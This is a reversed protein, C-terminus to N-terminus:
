ALKQMLKRTSIPSKLGIDAALSLISVPRSINRKKLIASLSVFKPHNTDYRPPTVISQDKYTHPKPIFADDVEEGPESWPRVFKAQSTSADTVRGSSWPEILSSMDFDSENPYVKEPDLRDPHDPDTQWRSYLRDVNSHLLFVFPDRFSVHRGGMVVFTHMNDHVGIMRQNMQNYDEQKLILEDEIPDAPFSPFISGVSRTLLKPPDAPNCHTCPVKEVEKEPGRYKEDKIKPNYFGAKRWPGKEHDIDIWDEEPGGYGMFDDTFLNLPNTGIFGSGVNANPIARPDQTWDWYHLSLRSDIKRLMAELRNVIERHWPLFNARGHVHTGKHIEDQKFWWTVGGPVPDDRKGKFVHEKDNLKRFAVILAHRESPSVAAINRRIGDGFVM